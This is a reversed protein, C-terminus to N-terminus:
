LNQSSLLLSVFAKVSLKSFRGVQEEDESFGPRCVSITPINYCVKNSEKTTYTQQLIRSRPMKWVFAGSYFHM